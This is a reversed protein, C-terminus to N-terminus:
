ERFEKPVDNEKMFRQAIQKGVIIEEWTFGYPGCGTEIPFEPDYNTIGYYGILDCCYMMKDHLSEPIYDEPYGNFKNLEKREDINENENLWDSLDVYCKAVMMPKKYKGEYDFIEPELWLVNYHEPYDAEKVLCGGYQMFNMDGFNEWEHKQTNM